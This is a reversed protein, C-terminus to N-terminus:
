SPPSGRRLRRDGGLRAPVRPEPPQPGQRHAPIYDKQPLMVTRPVAVGLRAALSYGFFKDDASWWFPDNIVFTGALAAAKLYFRYHKVEQSIRDVLVRYRAQFREPTGGIKAIEAQIGPHANCREIFAQPM